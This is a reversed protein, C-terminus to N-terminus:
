TVSRPLMPNVKHNLTGKCSSDELCVETGLAGDTGRDTCRDARPATNYDYHKLPRTTAISKVEQGHTTKGKNKKKPQQQNKPKQKQKQM